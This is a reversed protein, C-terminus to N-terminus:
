SARHGTNGPSEKGVTFTPCSLAAQRSCFYDILQFKLSLTELFVKWVELTENGFKTNAKIAKTRIPINIEKKLGSNKNIIQQKILTIGAYEPASIRSFSKETIISIIGSEIWSGDTVDVLIIDVTDEALGLKNFYLEIDYDAMFFKSIMEKAQIRFEKSTKPDAYINLYDNLDMLKQEAKKEFAQLTESSLEDKIFDSEIEEFFTNRNDVPTSEKYGPGCDEATLLFLLMLCNLIKIIQKM